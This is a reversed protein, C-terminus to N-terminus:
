DNREERLQGAIELVNGAALLIDDVAAWIWVGTEHAADAVPGDILICSAGSAEVPSAGPDPWERMEIRPKALTRSLESLAAPDEFEIYLSLTTSHFVPSPLVRIAPSPVYEGLLREIEQQIRTQAAALTPQAEDGLRPLMNFALQADFVTKPFRQFSLLKISQNQLEEVGRAGLTSAPVFLNAVASRVTFRASLPLLIASLLITGPHPSVFYGRMARASDDPVALDLFPIRLEGPPTGTPPDCAIIVFGRDDEEEPGRGWATRLANWDKGAPTSAVLTFECGQATASPEWESQRAQLDIVPLDPEDGRADLEILQAVPFNSEELSQALQRGLLSAPGQLAVRYGKATM